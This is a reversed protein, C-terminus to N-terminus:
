HARLWGVRRARYMGRGSRRAQPERKRERQQAPRVKAVADEPKEGVVSEDRKAVHGVLHEPMAEHPVRRGESRDFPIRAEEPHDHEIHHPTDSADLRRVRGIWQQEDRPEARKGKGTQKQAAHPQRGAQFASAMKANTPTNVLRVKKVQSLEPKSVLKNM